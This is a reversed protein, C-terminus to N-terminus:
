IIKETILQKPRQQGFDLSLKKKYHSCLTHVSYSYQGERIYIGTHSEELGALLVLSLKAFCSPKLESMESM